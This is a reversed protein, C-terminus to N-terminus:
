NWRMETAIRCYCICGRHDVITFATQHGMHPNPTLATRVGV